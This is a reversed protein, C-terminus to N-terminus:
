RECSSISVGLLEFTKVTSNEQLPSLSLHFSCLHYSIYSCFSPQEVLQSLVRPKENSELVRQLWETSIPAERLTYFPVKGLMTDVAWVEEVVLLTPTVLHVEKQSPVPSWHSRIGHTKHCVTCPALHLM